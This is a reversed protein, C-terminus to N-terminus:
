PFMRSPWGSPKHFGCYASDELADRDCELCKRPSFIDLITACSTFILILLFISLSKYLLPKNIKM